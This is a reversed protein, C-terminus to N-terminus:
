SRNSSRKFILKIKQDFQDFRRGKPRLIARMKRAIRAFDAASRLDAINAQLYRLGKSLKVGDRAKLALHTRRDWGSRARALSPISGRRGAGAFVSRTQERARSLIKLRAFHALRKWM